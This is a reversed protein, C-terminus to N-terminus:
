ARECFQSFLGNAENRRGKHRDTQGDPHFLEARVLRIKLLGSYAEFIQRSFELKM